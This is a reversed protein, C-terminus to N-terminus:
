MCLALYETKQVDACNGSNFLIFFFRVTPIIYHGKSSSFSDFM